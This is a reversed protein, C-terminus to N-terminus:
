YTLKKDTRCVYGNRFKIGNWELYRDLGIGCIKNHKYRHIEHRGCCNFKIHFEDDTDWWGGRCKYDTIISHITRLERIENEDFALDKEKRWHPNTRKIAVVWSPPNTKSNCETGKKTLCGCRLVGYYGDMFKERILILQQRLRIDGLLHNNKPLYAPRRLVNKQYYEDIIKKYVEEPLDLLWNTEFFIIGTEYDMYTRPKVSNKVVIDKKLTNM